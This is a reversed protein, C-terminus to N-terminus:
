RRRWFYILSIAGIGLLAFGSPEPVPTVSLSQTWYHTAAWPDSQFGVSITNVGTHLLASPITFTDDCWGHTADHNAAPDYNDAVLGTESFPGNNVVIDVPSYGGGPAGTAASSAHRMDLLLDSVTALDFSVTYSSYGPYILKHCGGMGSEYIFDTSSVSAGGTASITPQSFDVSFAPVKVGVWNAGFRSTVTSVRADPYGTQTTVTGTNRAEQFQAATWDWGVDNGDYWVPSFSPHTDSMVQALNYAGSFAIPMYYVGPTLPATKAVNVDYNNTGTGIWSNTTVLQTTRDGWTTTYGLPAIANTPMPNVTQIKITGTIADGPNARIWYNSADITQGNLLGGPQLTVSLDTAEAAPALCLLMTVLLCTCIRM